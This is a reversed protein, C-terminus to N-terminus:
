PAPLGTQDEVSAIWDALLRLGPRLDATVVDARLAPVDVGAFALKAEEVALVAEIGSRHLDPHFQIALVSGLSWAQIYRDSTALKKAGPPPEVTDTHFSFYRGALWNGEDALPEVEIFGVELGDEGELAKGGLADAAIQSGLCIALMPVGATYAAAVYTKETALYPYEKEQYASQPGGLVVVGRVDALRPLDEGASPRVVKIPVEHVAAAKEVVDTSPKPIHGIVLLPWGNMASSSM